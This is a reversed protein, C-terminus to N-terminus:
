KRNRISFFCDYLEELELLEKYFSQKDFHYNSNKENKRVKLSRILLSGDDEGWKWNGSTPFSYSDIGESKKSGIYRFLNKTTEKPSNVIDTYDVIISSNKIKNLNLFCTRLYKILYTTSKVEDIELNMRVLSNIILEPSRVLIIKIHALKPLIPYTLYNDYYAPRKVLVFPKSTLRAFYFYQSYKNGSINFPVENLHEIEPAEALLAKLLTSGSRMPSLILIIKKREAFNYLIFGIVTKLISRIM